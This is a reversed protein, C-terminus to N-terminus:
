GVNLLQFLVKATFKTEVFILGCLQQFDGDFNKIQRYLFDEQGIAKLNTFGSNRDYRTYKDVKFKPLLLYEHSPLYNEMSNTAGGVSEKKSRTRVSTRRKPIASTQDVSVIGNKKQVFEISKRISTDRLEIDTQNNSNGNNELCDKIVIKECVNEENNVLKVDVESNRDIILDKGGYDCVVSSDEVDVICSDQKITKPEKNLAMDLISPNFGNCQSNESQNEVQCSDKSKSESSDSNLIMGVDSNTEKKDCKQVIEPSEHSCEEGEDSESSEDFDSQVKEPQFKRLIEILRLIKPSTYKYVRDRDSIEEFFDSLIARIKLIVTFTMCLILFHREYPTAVKLKEIHILLVLAARDASWPGSIM